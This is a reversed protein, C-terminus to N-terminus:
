FCFGLDVQHECWLHESLMSLAIDGSTAPKIDTHHASGFQLTIGGGLFFSPTTKISNYGMFINHGRIEANLMAKPPWPDFATNIPIM